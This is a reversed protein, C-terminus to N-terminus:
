AMVGCRDHDVAIVGGLARSLAVELAVNPLLAAVSRALQARDMASIREPHTGPILPIDLCLLEFSGDHLQIAAVEMKTMGRATNQGNEAFERLLAMQIVDDTALDSLQQPQRDLFNIIGDTIYEVLDKQV